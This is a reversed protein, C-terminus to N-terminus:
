NKPSAGVLESVVASLGSIESMPLSNIFEKDMEGKSMDILLSVLKETDSKKSESASVQALTPAFLEVEQGDCFTYTKSECKIKQLAM